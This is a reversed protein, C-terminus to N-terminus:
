FINAAKSAESHRCGRPVIVHYFINEAKFIKEREVAGSANYNIIINKERKKKTELFRDDSALSNDAM